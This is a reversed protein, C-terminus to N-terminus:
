GRPPLTPGAHAWPRPGCHGGPRARQLGEWRMGPGRMSVISQTGREGHNLRLKVKLARGEATEELCEILFKIEGTVPTRKIRQETRNLCCRAEGWGGGGTAAIEERVGRFM